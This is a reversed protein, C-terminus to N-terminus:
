IYIYIYIYICLDGRMVRYTPWGDTTWDMLKLVISNKYLFMCGRVKEITWNEITRRQEGRNAGTRGRVSRPLYQAARQPGSMSVAYTYYMCKYAHISIILLIEQIYSCLVSRLSPSGGFRSGRRFRRTLFLFFFFFCYGAPRKGGLAISSVTTSPLARSVVPVPVPVPVPVDCWWM